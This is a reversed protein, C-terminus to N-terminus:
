FFYVVSVSPQNGETNTIAATTTTTAPVLNRTSIHLFELAIAYAGDRYAIMGATQRNELRTFGAAKAQAQNPQDIGAFGWVSLQKTIKFGLQGWAGFGSVDPRDPTQMQFMNGFVGGTNKGYWGNGAISVPGLKVKFGLEGVLTQM